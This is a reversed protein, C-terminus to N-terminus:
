VQIRTGALCHWISNATKLFGFWDRTGSFTCSMVKGPGGTGSETSITQSWMNTITLANTTTVSTGQTQTATESGLGSAIISLAAAAGKAYPSDVSGLAKGAATMVSSITALDTWVGPVPSATSNQESFASTTTVGTTQAFQYTAANKDRSDAPPDYVIVVPLAPITFAGAGIIPPRNILTAAYETYVRTHPDMGPPPFASWTKSGSSMSLGPDLADASGVDFTLSAGTTESVMGGFDVTFKGQSEVVEFLLTANVADVLGEIGVRRVEVPKPPPANPNWSLVETTVQWGPAFIFQGTAANFTGVKVTASLTPIPFNVEQAKISNYLDMLTSSSNSM